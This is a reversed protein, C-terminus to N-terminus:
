GKLDEERIEKGETFGYIGTGEEFLLGSLLYDHLLTKLALAVVAAL